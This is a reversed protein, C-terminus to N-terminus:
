ERRQLPVVLHGQAPEDGLPGWLLLHAQVARGVAAVVRGQVGAEVGSGGAGIGLVEARGDGYSGGPSCTRTPSRGRCRGPPTRRRGCRASGPRCTRSSWGTRGGRPSGAAACRRGATGSRSAPRPPPPTGRATSGAS